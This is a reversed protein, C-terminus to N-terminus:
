TGNPNIIANDETLWFCFKGPKKQGINGLLIQNLHLFYKSQFSM